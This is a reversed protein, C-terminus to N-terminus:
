RGNREEKRKMVGKKRAWGQLDLQYWFVAPVIAIKLNKSNMWKRILGPRAM